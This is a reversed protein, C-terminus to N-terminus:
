HKISMTNPRSSGLALLYFNGIFDVATAKVNLHQAVSGFRNINNHQVQKIEIILIEIDRELYRM